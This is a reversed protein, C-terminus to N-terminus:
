GALGESEIFDGCDGEVVARYGYIRSCDRADTGGARDDIGEEGAAFGGVADVGSEALEGVDADLGPLDLDELAIEDAAVGASEAIGEGLVFDAGHEEEAGVDEGFSAAADAGLEEFGEEGKEIVADM